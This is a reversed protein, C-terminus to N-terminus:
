FTLRLAVGTTASRGGRTAIYLNRVAVAVKLVFAAQSLRKNAGHKGKASLFEGAGVVVSAYALQSALARPVSARCRKEGHDDTFCDNPNANMPNAEWANRNASQAVFTSLVDLGAGGLARAIRAGRDTDVAAVVRCDLLYRQGHDWCMPLREPDACAYLTGHPGACVDVPAGGDAVPAEAVVEGGLVPASLAVAVVMASLM